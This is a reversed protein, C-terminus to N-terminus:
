YLGRDQALWLPITITSTNSDRDLLFKIPIWIEEGGIDYLVAKGTDQLEQDYEIEIPEDQYRM